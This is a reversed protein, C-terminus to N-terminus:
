EGHPHWGSPSWVEVRLWRDSPVPDFTARYLRVDSHQHRAVRTLAKFMRNPLGVEKAWDTWTLRAVDPPVVVRGLGLEAQQEKFTMFRYEGGLGRTLKLAIPDYTERKTFWM